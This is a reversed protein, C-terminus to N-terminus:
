LEDQGLGEAMSLSCEVLGESSGQEELNLGFRHSFFIFLM